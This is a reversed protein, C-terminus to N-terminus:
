SRAIHVATLETASTAHLRTPILDWAMTWLAPDRKVQGVRSAQAVKAVSSMSISDLEHHSEGGSDHKSPQQAESPPEAQHLM